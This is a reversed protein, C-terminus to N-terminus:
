YLAQKGYLELYALLKDENAFPILELCRLLEELGAIKEFNNISDLVTREMDTVRVGDPKLEIGDNIRPAIYLYTVNDYNFAAFRNNGSVYVEYFVQNSCGYYEFASHRSIYATKTINSGIRYRNPVPEGTEM